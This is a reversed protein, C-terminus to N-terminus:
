NKYQAEVADKWDSLDQLIAKRLVGKFFIMPLSKIAAVVGTSKTEHVSTLKVTDGDESITLTTIFIFGDMEAQTRYFKNEAAETIRKDISAPKGFYMRTERWTLGVLGSVPQNLIEIKEIGKVIGAAGGIDVIAAWVATATAKITIHAEVKM